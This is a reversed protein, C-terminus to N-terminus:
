LFIIIIDETKLLVESKKFHKEYDKNLRISM